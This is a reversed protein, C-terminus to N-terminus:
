GWLFPDDAKQLFLFALPPNDGYDDDSCAPDAYGYTAEMSRFFADAATQTPFSKTVTFDNTFIATVTFTM